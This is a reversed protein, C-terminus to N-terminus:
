TEYYGEVIVIKDPTKIKYLEPVEYSKKLVADSSIHFNKNHEKLGCKEECRFFLNDGKKPLLYGTGKCKCGNPHNNKMLIYPANCKFNEADFILKTPSKGKICNMECKQLGMLMGDETKEIM